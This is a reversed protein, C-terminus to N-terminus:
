RSEVNTCYHDTFNRTMQIEDETLNEFSWTDSMTAATERALKETLNEPLQKLCLDILGQIELASSSAQRILSGHQMIAGRRRRQASGLIKQEGLVIDHADQRQFCLLPEDSRKCGSGRLTAPFGLQRLTHAISQHILDYLEHPQEFVKQSAPLCLCYTLENDHLITGGGSLRRVRPLRVLRDDVLLEASKQFYGLSVTPERWEYWRLTAVDRSIASELLTEDVAMNWAGLNPETDLIVRLQSIRPM